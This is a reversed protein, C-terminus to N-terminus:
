PRSPGKGSAASSGSDSATRVPSGTKRRKAAPASSRKGHEPRRPLWASTQRGSTTSPRANPPMTKENASSSSSRRRLAAREFARAGLGRLRELAGPEVRGLLRRALPQTGRRPSRAARRTARSRSVSSRSASSATGRGRRSTSISMTPSSPRSRAGRPRAGPDRRLRAPGCSSCRATGAAAPRASRRPAPAGCRRARTRGLMGGSSSSSAIASSSSGRVHSSSPRREAIRTGSAGAVPGRRASARRPRTRGGYM